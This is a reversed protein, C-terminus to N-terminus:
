ENANETTTEAPTETTATTAETGEAGEAVVGELIEDEETKPVATVSRCHSDDQCLM